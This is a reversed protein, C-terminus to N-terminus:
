EEEGEETTKAMQRNRKRGGGDEDEEPQAAEPPPTLEDLAQRYAEAEQEEVDKCYRPYHTRWREADVEEIEDGPTYKELARVCILKM